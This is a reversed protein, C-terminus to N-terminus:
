QGAAATEAESTPELSEIALALANAAKRVNALAIHADSVRNLLRDSLQRLERLEHARDPM